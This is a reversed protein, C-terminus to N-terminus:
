EKMRILLLVKNFTKNGFLVVEEERCKLLRKQTLNDYQRILVVTKFNINYAYNFDFWSSSIVGLM